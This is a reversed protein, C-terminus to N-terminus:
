RWLLTQGINLKRESIFDAGALELERKAEWSSMYFVYDFLCVTDQSFISMNKYKSHSCLLTTPHDSVVTRM